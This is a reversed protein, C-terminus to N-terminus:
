VLGGPVIVGSRAFKEERNLWANGGHGIYDDFMGSLNSRLLRNKIEQHRFILPAFITAVNDEHLLRQDAAV